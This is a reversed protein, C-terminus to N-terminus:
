KAARTRQRIIREPRKKIILSRFRFIGISKVQKVVPLTTFIRDYVHISPPHTSNNTMKFTRFKAKYLFSCPNM